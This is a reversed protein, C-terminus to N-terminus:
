RRRGAASSPGAEGEPVSDDFKIDSSDTVFDLEGFYGAAGPAVQLDGTRFGGMGRMAPNSGPPGSVHEGILRDLYLPGTVQAASKKVNDAASSQIRDLHEQRATDLRGRQDQSLDAAPTDGLGLDKRARDEAAKLVAPPPNDRDSINIQDALGPSISMNNLANGIFGSGPPAAIMNNNFSGMRWRFEAPTPMESDPVGALGQLEALQANTSDLSKQDRFGPGLLPVTNQDMAPPERTLDIGGPGIDTDIYVGGQEHLAQYRVIDSKMTFIGRDEALSLLQGAGSGRDIGLDSAPDSSTNVVPKGDPGTEKGFSDFLHRNAAMASPDTYINVEWGAEKARQVWDALNKAGDPPMKGGFWAFHLKKPVPHAGPGAAGVVERPPPPATENISATRNSSFGLRGGGTQVGGLVDSVVPAVTGGDRLRDEFAQRAESGRQSARSGRAGPNNRGRGEVEFRPLQKGTLLARAIEVKKQDAFRDIDARAAPTLTNSGKPFDVRVDKPAPGGAPGSGGPGSGSPGGRSPASGGGDPSRDSTRGRDSGGSRGSDRAGGSPGDTGGGLGGGSRGLAALGAGAALPAGAAAATAPNLGDGTFTVAPAGDSGSGGGASPDSGPTPRPAPFTPPGVADSDSGDIGGSPGSGGGGGAAIPVVDPGAGGGSGGDGDSVAPVPGGSGDSGSGDDGSGPVPGRGPRGGGAAGTDVGTDSDSDSSTDTDTSTDTDAGSGPDPDRGPGGGAAAGSGGDGARDPGAGARSDIDGGAGSGDPGSGSRSEGVQSPDGGGDGSGVEIVRGSNADVAPGSGGDPAPM